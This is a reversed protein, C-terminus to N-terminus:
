HALVELLVAKLYHGEPFEPLEPHDPPAGRVALRKVRRGAETVAADIVALFAARGVHSSCSCTLVLAGPPARRLVSANLRRYAALARPLAAQSPAFAPPDVVVLSWPAEARGRENLWDFVNAALAQHQPPGFGNRELNRRAAAIAPKALDITLTKAAGGAAAALSFGGTYGFLNLVSRGRAHARVLARNERQDLYLGSKHGRLVDVEYLLGEERVLLPAPLEGTGGGPLSALEFAESEAGRRGAREVLTCRPLVAAVAGAVWTKLKRAAAGDFRLVAAPGYVDCTVGPLADGEGHLLRYTDTREPDILELRRAHARQVRRVVLAEDIAEAPDRAYVRALIPSGPDLLGRGLFQERGDVLEVVTGPPPLPAPLKRASNSWVWPHGARLARAANPKLVLKTPTGQM